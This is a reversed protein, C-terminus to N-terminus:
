DVAFLYTDMHIALWTAVFIVVTLWTPHDSKVMKVQIHPNAFSDKMVGLQWPKDDNEGAV